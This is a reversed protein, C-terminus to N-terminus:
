KASACSILLTIGWVCLATNGVVDAVTSGRTRVPLESNSLWVAKLIADVGLMVAVMAIFFTM